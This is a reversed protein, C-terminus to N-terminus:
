TKKKKKNSKESDTILINLILNLDNIENNFNNFNDNFEDLYNIDPFLVDDNINKDNLNDFEKFINNFKSVINNNVNNNYNQEIIDINNMENQNNTNDNM